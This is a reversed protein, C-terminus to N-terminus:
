GGLLLVPERDVFAYYVGLTAHLLGVLDHTIVAMPEGSAKAFGHAMAVAIKEHQVELIQPTGGAYNVLSDHLGRFSAGPNFAVYRVGLRQLADVVVDSGYRASSM